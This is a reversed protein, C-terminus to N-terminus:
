PQQEPERVILHFALASMACAYLALLALQLSRSRLRGPVQADIRRRFEDFAVDGTAGARFYLDKDVIQEQDAVINGDRLVDDISGVLAVATDSPAVRQIQFQYVKRDSPLVPPFRFRRWVEGVPLDVAETWEYLSAWGGTAENWTLLRCRVSISAARPSSFRVQVSNLGDNLSRFTQGITAGAGFTDILYPRGGESRVRVSPVFLAGATWVLVSALTVGFLIRAILRDNM